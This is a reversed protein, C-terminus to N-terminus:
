EGGQASAEGAYASSRGAALAFEPYALAGMEPLDLGAIETEVSVRNGLLADLVKFFVYFMTFVFVFCVLMGITQAVFQRADGYLLGTVTGPVGNWGDGYRGDAFLGLALLGWAGNVGHVSVAGVPDDV